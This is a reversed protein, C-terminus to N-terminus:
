AGWRKMYHPRALTIVRRREEQRWMVTKEAVVM